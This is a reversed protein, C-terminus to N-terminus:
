LPRLSVSRTGVRHVVRRCAYRILSTLSGHGDRLCPASIVTRQQKEQVTRLLDQAPLCRIPYEGSSTLSMASAMFCMCALGSDSRCVSPYLLIGLCSYSLYYLSTSSANRLRFCQLSRPCPCYFHLDDIHSMPQLSSLDKNTRTEAQLCCEATRELSPWGPELRSRGRSLCASSVLM